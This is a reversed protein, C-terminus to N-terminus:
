PKTAILRFANKLPELTHFLFLHNPYEQAQRPPANLIEAFEAPTLGFKKLVFQM